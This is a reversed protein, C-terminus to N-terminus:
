IFVKQSSGDYILVKTSDISKRLYPNKISSYTLLDVKRQFFSEFRDWLSILKEGRELPDMDDIEVLLDIDSKEYDFKDTISSGFVYLYKINHSACLLTFDGLRNCIKDKLIM